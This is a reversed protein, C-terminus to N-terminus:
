GQHELLFPRAIDVLMKGVVMISAMAAIVALMTSWVQRISGFDPDSSGQQKNDANSSQSSDASPKPADSPGQTDDNSPDEPAIQGVPSTPNLTKLAEVMAPSLRTPKNRSHAYESPLSEKSLDRRLTAAATADLCRPQVDLSVTIDDLEPRYDQNYTGLFVIDVGEIFQQQQGNIERIQTGPQPKIRLNEASLTITMTDDAGPQSNHHYSFDRSTGFTDKGEVRNAATRDEPQYRTMSKGPVYFGEYSTGARVEGDVIRIYPSLFTSALAGKHGTFSIGGPATEIDASHISGDPNLALRSTSPDIPMRFQFDAASKLSGNDTVNDTTSWDGKAITGTIYSRWSTKIGWALTGGTISWGPNACSIVTETPASNAIALNHSCLAATIATATVITKM